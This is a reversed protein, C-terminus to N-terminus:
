MESKERFSQKETESKYRSKKHEELEVQREQLRDADSERLNCNDAICKCQQFLKTKCQQLEKREYQLEVEKRETTQQPINTTRFSNSEDPKRFHDANRNQYSVTMLFPVYKALCLYHRHRSRDAHMTKM